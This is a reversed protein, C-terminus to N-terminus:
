GAQRTAIVDPGAVTQAAFVRSADVSILIAGASVPLVMRM